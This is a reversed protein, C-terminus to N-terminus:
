PIEKTVPSLLEYTLYSDYSYQALNLLILIVCYPVFFTYFISALINILALGQFIKHHQQKHTSVVWIGYFLFAFNILSLGVSTSKITGADPGKESPAAGDVSASM